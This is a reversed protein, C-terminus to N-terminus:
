LRFYTVASWPGDGTSNFGQVRWNYTGASLAQSIVTCLGVGGDCGLQAATFTAVVGNVDLRYSSAGLIAKWTYVPTNSTIPSVPAPALVPASTDYGPLAVPFMFPSVTTMGLGLQASSNAGWCKSAQNVVACTHMPGTSLSTVTGSLNVVPTPSTRQALDNTGLQGNDNLGWCKVEGTSMAACTHSAAQGIHVMNVGSALVVTPNLVDATSTGGLGIQGNLNRGWCRLGGVNTKVCTHALGASVAVADTFNGANTAILSRVTAQGNGLRGNDPLGWCKTVGDSQVACNHFQGSALSVVPATFGYVPVPTTSTVSTNNGLGGAGNGWCRVSGDTILACSHTSGATVAVAVYSGMLVDVPTTSNFADGLKNIGLQGFHNRGWCKVGGATTVACAHFTGAAISKVGSTLGTVDVPSRSPTTYSGNGISGYSNTGWCVAGGATTIGCTFNSGVSVAALAAAQAAPAFGFSVLGFGAVALWSKLTRKNNFIDINFFAKM